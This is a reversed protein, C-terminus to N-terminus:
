SAPTTRAAPRPVGAFHSLQFWDDVQRRLHTPGSLELGSRVADGWDIDGRWVRVLTRIPTRIRLDTGYGPDHDCVDVEERTMVLWWAAVDAPVDLFDLELVTRDEPIAATDVRRHMDWVLLTPDLDREGLGSMWRIGWQGVTDVVADLERGAETLTYIPGDDTERREVLGAGVLTKLRKSLLSRSMRPVGRHIDNFRDSGAVLERIVLLTWRQDLIEAAKAVPCFQGYEGM